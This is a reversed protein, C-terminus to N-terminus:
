CLFIAKCQDARYPYFRLTPRCKREVTLCFLQFAQNLASYIYYYIREEVLINPMWALAMHCLYIFSLGFVPELSKRSGKPNM